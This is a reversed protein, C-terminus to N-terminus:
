KARPVTFSQIAIKDTNKEIKSWLAYVASGVQLFHRVAGLQPVTVVVPHTSLRTSVKVDKVREGLVRDKLWGTLADADPQSLSAPNASDVM